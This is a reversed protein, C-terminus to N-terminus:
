PLKLMTPTKWRGWWGWDRQKYPTVKFCPVESTYRNTDWVNYYRYPCPLSKKEIYLM